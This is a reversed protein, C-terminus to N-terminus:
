ILVLRTGNRIDTKYVLDNPNYKQGTSSNYLAIEKKNGYQCNNFESISKLLLNIIDGIRKSIPIYLSYSEELEPVVLEIVVKNKM